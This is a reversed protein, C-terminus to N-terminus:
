EFSCKWIFVSNAPSYVASRGYTKYCSDIDEAEEDLGLNKLKRRARIKRVRLKCEIKRWPDDDDVRRSRRKSICSGQALKKFKRLDRSKQKAVEDLGKSKAQRIDDKYRDIKQEIQEQVAPLQIDRMADKDGGRDCRM